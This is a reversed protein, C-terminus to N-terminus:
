SDLKQHNQSNAMMTPPLLFGREILQRVLPLIAPVLREVTVGLGDSMKTMLQALTAQGDCHAILTAVPADINATYSL